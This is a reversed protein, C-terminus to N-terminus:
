FAICFPRILDQYETDNGSCTALQLKDGDFTPDSLTSICLKNKSKNRLKKSTYALDPVNCM